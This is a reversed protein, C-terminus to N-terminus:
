NQESWIKLIAKVISKVIKIIKKSSDAKIILLISFIRTLSKLFFKKDANGDEIIDQLEELANEAINQIFNLSGDTQDSDEPAAGHILKETLDSKIKELLDVPLYEGSFFLEPKVEVEFLDSDQSQLTLNDM